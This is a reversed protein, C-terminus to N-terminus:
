KERVKHHHLEDDYLVASLAIAEATLRGM